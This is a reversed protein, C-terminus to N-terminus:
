GQDGDPKQPEDAQHTKEDNGDKPLLEISLEHEAGAVLSKEGFVHGAHCRHLRQLHLRVHVLFVALQEGLVEGGAEGGLLDANGVVDDCITNLLHHGKGDEDDASQQHHLVFAKGDAHQNRELHESGAHTLGHKSQDPQPLLELLGVDGDFAQSVNEVHRLLRVCERGVALVGALSPYVKETEREAIGFVIGPEVAVQVEGELRAMESYQHTWGAAALAREGFNQESEVQGLFAMDIQIALVDAVQGGVLQPADEPDHRLFGNEEGSGKVVVEDHGVGMRAEFLDDLGALRRLDVLHDLFQRVAILGLDALTARPQGTALPLSQGYRPREELLGFDQDEVFRDGVQVAVRGLMEGPGDVLELPVHRHEEDGVLDRAAQLHVLHHFESRDDPLHFDHIFPLRPLLSVRITILSHVMTALLSKAKGASIEVTATATVMFMFFSEVISLVNKTDISSPGKFSTEM